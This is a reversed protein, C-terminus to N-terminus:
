QSEYIILVCNKIMRRAEFDCEHMSIDPLNLSNSGKTNAFNDSRLEVGKQIQARAVVTAKSAQDGATGSEAKTPFSLSGLLIIFFAILWKSVLQSGVLRARQTM